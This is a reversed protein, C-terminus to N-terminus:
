KLKLKAFESCIEICKEVNMASSGQVQASEAKGGGKGQLLEAVQGVWENAKLGKEVAAPPVQAMVYVKTPSEVSIFLAPKWPSAAKVQRLGADLAQLSIPLPILVSIPVCKLM